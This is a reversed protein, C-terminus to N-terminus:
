TETELTWKSSKQISQTGKKLIERAFFACLEPTRIRISLVQTAICISAFHLICAGLSLFFSFLLSCIDCCGRYLFLNFGFLFFRNQVKCHQQPM